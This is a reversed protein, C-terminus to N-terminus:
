QPIQKLLGAPLDYSNPWALAYVDPYAHGDLIAAADDEYPGYVSFSTGDAGPPGQLALPFKVTTTNPSIKIITDSM